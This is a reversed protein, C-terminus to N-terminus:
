LREVQVDGRAGVGALGLAPLVVRMEGGVARLADGREGHLFDEAQLQRKARPQLLLRISDSTAALALSGLAIGDARQREGSRSPSETAASPCCRVSRLSILWAHGRLLASGFGRQRQQELAAVRD